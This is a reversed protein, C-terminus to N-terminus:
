ANGQGEPLVSLEHLLDQMNDPLVNQENCYKPIDGLDNIYDIAKHKGEKTLRLYGFILKHFDTNQELKYDEHFANPFVLM